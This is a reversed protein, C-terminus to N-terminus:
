TARKKQRGNNSVVAIRLGLAGIISPTIPKRGNLINNLTPRDVGAKKAWALQSGAQQVEFRLLSVVDEPEFIRVRKIPPLKLRKRPM